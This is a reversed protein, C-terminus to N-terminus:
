LSSRDCCKFRRNHAKYIPLNRTLYTPRARFDDSFRRILEGSAGNFGYIAQDDDGVAFLTRRNDPDSRALGAIASILEYEDPGIDQYEDVLIWRYGERFGASRATAPHRIQM